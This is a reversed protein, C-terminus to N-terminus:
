LLDPNVFANLFLLRKDEDLLDFNGIEFVYTSNKTKLTILNGEILVSGCSTHLYNQFIKDRENPFFYIFKEGPFNNESEFLVILGVKDIHEARFDEYMMQAEDFAAIMKGYYYKKLIAM